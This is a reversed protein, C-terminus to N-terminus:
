SYSPWKPVRYKPVVFNYRLPGPRAAFQTRDLLGSSLSKELGSDRNPVFELCKPPKVCDGSMKSNPLRDTYQWSNQISGPMYFVTSATSVVKGATGVAPFVKVYLKGQLVLIEVLAVYSTSRTHTSQDTNSMRGMCGVGRLQIDRDCSGDASFLTGVVESDVANSLIPLNTQLHGTASVQRHPSLVRQHRQREVDSMTQLSEDHQGYGCRQRLHLWLATVLGWSRVATSTHCPVATGTRYSYRYMEVACHSGAAGSPILFV